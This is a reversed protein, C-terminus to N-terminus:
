FSMQEHQKIMWIFSDPVVFNEYTSNGFKLFLFLIGPDGAGLALFFTMENFLFYMNLSLGSFADM